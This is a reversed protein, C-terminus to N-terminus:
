RSNHAMLGEKTALYSYANMNDTDYIFSRVFETKEEDWRMPVVYKRHILQKLVDGVISPPKACEAVIHEFSEVFYIANLVDYEIDTLLSDM